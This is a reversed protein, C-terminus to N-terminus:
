VSGTPRGYLSSPSPSRIWEGIPRLVPVQTPDGMPEKPDLWRPTGLRWDGGVLLLESLLEVFEGQGAPPAAATGYGFVREPGLSANMEARGRVLRRYDNRRLEGAYAELCDLVEQMRGESFAVAVTPFPLDAWLGWLWLRLSTGPDSLVVKEFAAAVARGVLEHAPHGDQHSPAVIIRAGESRISEAVLGEIERESIEPERVAAQSLRLDFGARESAEAAEAARRQRQDEARGLSCVLNVVRSGSDRLAMLAAPAGTLEDDPHPAVHLVTPQMTRRATAEVSSEGASSSM